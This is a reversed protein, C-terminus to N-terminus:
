QNCNNENKIITLLQRTTIVKCKNTIEEIRHKPIDYHPFNGEHYWGKDIQLDEAMLHLNMISYPQCILHRNKDCLYVM